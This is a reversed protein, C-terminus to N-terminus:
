PFAFTIKAFIRREPQISTSMLDNDFYKFDENFLNSAGLTLFGYRKPLRYSLSLDVLWFTDEGSTFVGSPADTREFEGEQHNFTGKLGASLGSPHFFNVGLPVRHTEMEQVNASFEANREAEEYIYETQLSFWEHPTWYVYARGLYEEWDSTELAPPDSLSFYPVELDRKSAEIGGYVAPSFKQDIGLGYRWADVANLDDYFQNFGAVQTPELTQDTILTRKLTRFVAGRVTTGSLPQWTLGFKPNFQEEDLDRANSDEDDSEFSDVSAGATVMVDFPLYLHNYIYANKHTIHRETFEISNLAALPPIFQLNVTEEQVIDFYGAGAVTNVHESRFLHQVEGNYAEDDAKLDFLTLPTTPPPVDNLFRDTDTYAVNGILTSAPTFAYKGGVRMTNTTAGQRLDELFDDEFFRLQTDGRENDRYRYEAQISAKSNIEWQAFVNAIDDQQDANTRWGDTEFGAYGASLSFNNSIGSAVAEGGRTDQEGLLGSGQISVGNRNFLPNFENFSTRAAGSSSILFLNSEALQPQIPTINMPQLLQSQLLESVRAIEHRPLAAYTDALFRHASYNTPDTNVSNYGEVLARQDFGLDQYIRAQSASRAALDSDLQLKSRYVARNDNLEKAKQISKLAEVPRNITQKRIADYFYPTPDKPDLQKAVEYERGDLGTRKEEFYAKGLYSRVLSNNPDLSAAIEILARGEQLKGKRIRALGLGLRPLPDAQDLEIAKTFADQAQGIKVKNLYAFGLVTQTRSLSPELRVAKQAAELAKGLRGFSSHMEALRAWALANEPEKQVATQLSEMAGELNFHAQRAYSLAIHAAASEPNRRVNEQAIDLAMEKDNQVIAMVTQLAMAQSNRPELELAKRIHSRAQEVSGVALLQSARSTHFNSTGPEAAKEGPRYLVPPYHLAWQVADRPRALVYRAPAEDGKARASQGSTLRLSGADNSALVEGEFITLSTTEGEVELLLETGRVGATMNPTRVKLSRPERSLFHAAGKFFDLLANREKKAQQLTIRSDQSLRLVSQNHLTLDARSDSDTRLKDGPCFTDHLQVPKWESQGMFQVRVQGQVSVAKAVWQECRKAFAACPNVVVAGLVLCMVLCALFGGQHKM